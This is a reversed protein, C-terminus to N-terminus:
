PNNPVFYVAVPGDELEHISLLFSGLKDCKPEWMSCDADGSECWRDCMEESASYEFRDVSSKGDNNDFWDHIEGAKTDENWWPFDPHAFMGNEDRVVEVAKITM